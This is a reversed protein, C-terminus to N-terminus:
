AGTELYDDIQGDYFANVEDEVVAYFGTGQEGDGFVFSEIVTVKDMLKTIEEVGYTVDDITAQDQGDLIEENIEKVFDVFSKVEKEHGQDNIEDDIDEQEAMTFLTMTMVYCDLDVVVYVIKKAM